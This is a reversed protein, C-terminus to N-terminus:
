NVVTDMLKRLRHNVGSKGVPPNLYGGLETLTADPYKLRISAMERLPKPLNKLEGSEKLRRIHAIQRQATNVTKKINATECNVKRNVSGRMERLIRANEFEFFAKSAGMLGLLKEIQEGEKIYVVTSKGRQTLRAEIELEALVGRIEEAESQGPVVFEMHYSKHPDSIAGHELFARRLLRRNAIDREEPSASKSKDISVTEAGYTFASLESKLDKAFSM